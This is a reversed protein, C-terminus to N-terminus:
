GVAFFGVASVVLLQALIAVAFSATTELREM